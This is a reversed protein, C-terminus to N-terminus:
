LLGFQTFHHTFHKNQFLFWETKNLLGFIPHTHLLQPRAEAYKIFSEVEQLLAEKALKINAYQLQQLDDGIFPAVFDRRLPAEGLLMLRKVKEVKEPSTVQEVEFKGMAIQLPLMLHELMHQASMKGWVAPTDASLPGLLSRLEAINSFSIFGEM